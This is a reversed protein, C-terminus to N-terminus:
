LKQLTTLDVTLRAPTNLNPFLKTSSLLRSTRQTHGTALGFAMVRRKIHEQAGYATLGSHCVLADRLDMYSDQHIDISMHLEDIQVALSRNSYGLGRLVKHYLEPLNVEKEFYPFATDKVIGPLCISLGDVRDQVQSLQRVLEKAQKRLAQAKLALARICDDTYKEWTPRDEPKFDVYYDLDAAWQGLFPQVRCIKLAEVIFGKFLAALCDGQWDTRDIVLPCVPESKIKMCSALDQNPRVFSRMDPAVALYGAPGVLLPHPHEPLWIPHQQTHYLTFTEKIVPFHVGIELFDPAFKYTTPLEYLATSPLPSRPLSQRRLERAVSHWMSAAKVPPVLKPSVRDATVLVELAESIADLSHINRATAAAFGEISALQAQLHLSKHLAEAIQATTRTLDELERRMQRLQGEIHHSHDTASEWLSTVLGGFAAGLLMLGVQRKQRRVPWRSPWYEARECADMMAAVTQNFAFKAAGDSVLQLARDTNNRFARCHDHFGSLDVRFKILYTGASLHLPGQQQFVTAAATAIAAAALMTTARM